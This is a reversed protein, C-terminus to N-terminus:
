AKFSNSTAVQGNSTVVKVFYYQGTTLATITGSIDATKGPNISTSSMTAQQSLSGNGYYVYMASINVASQGIDQVYAGISTAGSTYSVANLAIQDTGIPPSSATQNGIFGIVYAYVVVGAAIAILILLLTAIIPSIAKKEKSELLIKRNM